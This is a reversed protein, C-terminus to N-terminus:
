RGSRDRGHHERPVAGGAHGISKRHKFISYFMVGFVGVFIVVCVWFIFSHLDFIQQAIPTVPPQFNCELAALAAGPALSRRPSSRRCAAPAGGPFGCEHAGHKGEIVDSSQQESRRAGIAQRWTSPAASGRVREVCPAPAAAAPCAALDDADRHYAGACRRRRHGADCACMSCLRSINARVRRRAASAREARAAAFRRARGGAATESGRASRRGATRGARAGLTAVNGDAAPM